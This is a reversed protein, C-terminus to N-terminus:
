NSNQDSIEAQRELDIALRKADKTSLAIDFTAGEEREFRVLVFGCGKQSSAITVYKFTEAEMNSGGATQVSAM